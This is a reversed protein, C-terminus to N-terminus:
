LERLQTLHTILTIMALSCREFALPLNWLSKDRKGVRNSVSRIELFPIQYLRAIHASASGEMSEMIPEYAMQLSQARQETATITSVTIFAGCAVRVNQKEFATSLLAKAKAGLAQNLPYVSTVSGWASDFLPFPLPDPCVLNESEIGTHIDTDSLAIGVDGIVLGSQDYAGACGTHIILDPKIQELVATMAQAANIMGPGTILVGVHSGSLTGTFFTRGGVRQKSISSLATVLQALEGDVSATILVDLNKNM